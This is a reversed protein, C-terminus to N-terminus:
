FKFSVKARVTDLDFDVGSDDFDDFNHHLYEAGVIINDTVAYDLGAGFAYGTDDFEGLATDASAHAIGGTLYPLFRDFAYGAKLKGRAIADIEGFGDDAEINAFDYDAEIGLVVNGLAFNYGVHGGGLFGDAEVDGDPAPAEIDAWGYGAQGGLYFGSWDYAQVIVPAAPPTPQLVVADAALAPAAAFSAFAAALCLKRM